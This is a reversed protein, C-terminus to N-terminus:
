KIVEYWYKSGSDDTSWYEHQIAHINVDVNQGHINISVKEWVERNVETFQGDIYTYNKHYQGNIYPSTYVDLDSKKCHKAIFKELDKTYDNYTVEKM